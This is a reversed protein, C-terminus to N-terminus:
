QRLRYFTNGSPAVQLSNNSVGSVPTWTGGKLDTTSELTFGTVTSDWSITVTAGSRAISLQPAQVPAASISYLGFDDIGFYWSDTGAHAFRFRVKAQNDAAPLRFLEVRKSESPNDDVRASIYPALDQTIPAAIFAGYTGGKDNGDADTYHAVDSYDTTLTAVADVMSEGTTENTTYLMDGQVLMYVVPLWNQGQDVSYEVAGFSDQNQEWLSHYSVHVNTKGTLDYDPTYAFMVQSAGQRYGSDSFLFRGTALPGDLVKGNVVNRPNGTLVRHYDNQETASGEPNSYTVFSGTFRDAGVVLWRAYSASDLNGLDEEPNVVETYSVQSWGAPLQGEATSDFNEFYLPSPLVIDRYAMIQFSVTNTFRNAPTANDAFEIVAQHSSTPAYISANTYAITVLDAELKFVPTVQNGDVRLVVSNSDVKSAGNTISLIIPVQPALDKAGDAPQVSLVRPTTSAAQVVSFSNSALITYGDNELLYATYLGAQALGDPFTLTGATVGSAGSQTGDVYQWLTSAPGGPTQGAQYIGVWDKANGLGNTFTLSITQGVTYVRQSPRVAPSAPDIVTFANSALITYGDNLLLYVNWNGATELGGSFTLTGEKYGVGSTQSGNVYQWLTSNVSGPESGEPYIGIWDKPNGPGDQFDVQIDEGPFYASYWTQATPTQAMTATASLLGMLWLGASRLKRTLIQNM